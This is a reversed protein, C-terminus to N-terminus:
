DDNLDKKLEAVRDMINDFDDREEIYMSMPRVSELVKEASEILARNIKRNTEKEQKMLENVNM